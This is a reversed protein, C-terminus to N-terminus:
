DTSSLIVEVRRNLTRGNETLNSALPALYGVGEADVQGTPVGLAKTLRDSVSRARKKSLAINGALSGEADTHGVLVIQRKPNDILYQALTSLSDFAGEGLDASGTQFTLDDLVARGAQELTDVLPGEAKPLTESRSVSSLPEAELFDPSKTSAVVLETEALEPAVQTMQVFGRQATRSVMLSVYEAADGAGKRASLFRYDGLDVHMKPETMVETGFRFDFGGCQRAECEFLVEFGRAELQARLPALLQLTTLGPAAVHWAERRIAGEVALSPVEADKFADTPIQTSGFPTKEEAVQTANSPFDLALSAAPFGTTAVTMSLFLTLRSIM